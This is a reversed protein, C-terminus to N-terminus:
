WKAILGLPSWSVGTRRKVHASSKQRCLATLHRVVIMHSQPKLLLTLNVRRLALTHHELELAALNDEEM